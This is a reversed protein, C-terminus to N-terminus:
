SVVGVPVRQAVVVAVVVSITLRYTLRALPLPVALSLSLRAVVALVDVRGGGPLVTVVVAVRLAPLGVATLVTSAAIVM